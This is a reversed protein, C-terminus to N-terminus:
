ESILIRLTVYKQISKKYIRKQNIILKTIAIFLANNLLLDYKKNSYKFGNFLYELNFAFYIHIKRMKNWM